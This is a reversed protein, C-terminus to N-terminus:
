KRDSKKASKLIQYFQYEFQESPLKAPSLLLVGKKDILYCTPYATVAYKKLLTCNDDYNLFLLNLQKKQKFFKVENFDDDVSICIIQLDDIYKNQITDLLSFEKLCAYSKISCFYLYVFKNSFNNLSYLKGDDGYLTFNQPKYGPLLTILNNRINEAIIKNDVSNTKFYVSDIFNVLSNNINTYKKLELYVTNLIIIEKLYDNIAIKENNFSSKLLEYNRLHIAKEFVTKQKNNSLTLFYNDFLKHFMEMYAPNQYLVPKNIFYNKIFQEQNNKKDLCYKLYAIKYEKYALFYPNTYLHYLTDLNQIISDTNINTKKGYTNIILNNYNYEYLEDFYYLYYNIDFTDVPINKSFLQLIGIQVETEVFYPNLKQEIKKDTRPPLIIQYNIGPEVYMYAKIAGLPLIIKIIEDTEISFSFYGTSDVIFNATEYESLTIYDSISYVFIRKNAYEPNKGSIISTSANIYESIIIIIIVFLLKKLYFNCKM